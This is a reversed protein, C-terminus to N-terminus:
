EDDQAEMREALWHLNQFCGACLHVTRKWKGKTGSRSSYVYERMTAKYPDYLLAGCADCIYAKM